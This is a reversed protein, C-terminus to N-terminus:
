PQTIEIWQEVVVVRRRYVHGGTRRQHKIWEAVPYLREIAPDPNRVHFGGDSMLLGYETVPKGGTKSAM